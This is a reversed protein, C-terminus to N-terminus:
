GGHTAPTTEGNTPKKKRKKREDKPTPYRPRRNTGGSTYRLGVTIPKRGLRRVGGERTPPSTQLGGGTKGMIVMKKSTPVGNNPGTGWERGPGGGRAGGTENATVVGGGRRQSKVLELVNKTKKTPGGGRSLKTSAQKLPM